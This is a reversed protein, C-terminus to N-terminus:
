GDDTNATADYNLAVKDMCGYIKDVCGDNINANANYNFKNADMCGYVPCTMGATSYDIQSYDDDWGTGLWNGWCGGNSAVKKCNIPSCVELWKM